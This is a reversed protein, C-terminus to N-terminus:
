LSVDAEQTYLCKPCYIIEVTFYTEGNKTYIHESVTELEGCGNPCSMQILQIVEGWTKM